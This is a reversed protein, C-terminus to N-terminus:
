VVGLLPGAARCSSAKPFSITTARPPLFDDGSGPLLGRSALDGPREAEVLRRWQTLRKLALRCYHPSLSTAGDNPAWWVCHVAANFYWDSIHLTRFRRLHNAVQEPLREHYTFFDVTPRGARFLAMGGSVGKLHNYVWSSCQGNALDAGGGRAAAEVHDVQDPSSPAAGFDLAWLSKGSFCCIARDRVFIEAKQRESFNERPSAM